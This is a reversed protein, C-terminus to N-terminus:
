YSTGNIITGKLIGDIYLSVPGSNRVFAVHHCLNDNLSISSFTFQKDLYITLQSSSPFYNIFLFDAGARNDVFSPCCLQYGNMRIWMEITLNGTGYNYANIAAARAYQVHTVNEFLLGTSN